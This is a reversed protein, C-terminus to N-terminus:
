SCCVSYVKSERRHTERRKLTGNTMSLIALAMNRFYVNGRGEVKAFFIFDEYFNNMCNRSPTYVDSGGSFKTVKDHLEALTYLKVNAESELWQCLM